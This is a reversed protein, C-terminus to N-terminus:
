SLASSPSAVRGSFLSLAEKGGWCAMLARAAAIVICVYVICLVRPSFVAQLAGGLGRRPNSTVGIAYGFGFTM